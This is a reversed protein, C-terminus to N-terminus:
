QILSYLCHKRPQDTSGFYNTLQRPVSVANVICGIKNDLESAPRDNRGVPGQTELKRPPIVAAQTLDLFRHLPVTGHGEWIYSGTQKSKQKKDTCHGLTDIHLM